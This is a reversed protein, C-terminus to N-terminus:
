IAIEAPGSIRTEVSLDTVRGQANSGRAPVDRTVPIRKILISPPKVSCGSQRVAIGADNLGLPGRLLGQRKKRPTVRFEFLVSIM